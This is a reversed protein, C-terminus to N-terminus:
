RNRHLVISGDPKKTVRVPLYHTIVDLFTDTDGEKFVGSIRLAVIDPDAFLPRASYRSVTAVVSGLSADDFILQGTQWATISRINVTQIRPPQSPSAVLQEGPSLMLPEARPLGDPTVMVRGHILAVFVSRGLLNVNFDTGVALVIQGGARVTFPRASNHAVEFRAQGRSLRVRRTHPFYRVDLQTAADLFVRSGDALTVTEHQGLGTEYHLVESPRASLIVAFLVYALATIVLGGGVWLGSRPGARWRKAGALRARNLADRRASMLEPAVTFEETIKWSVQVRKWAGLNLPDSALWEEFETSSEIDAESLRVRWLSAEALRRVEQERDSPNM